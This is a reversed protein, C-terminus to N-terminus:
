HAGNQNRVRIILEVGEVTTGSPLEPLTDITVKASDIDELQGTDVHYFHHHPTPNTDYVVRNPDMIVERVLGKGAFLGLTNYVTAKSVPTRGGKNALELLQDATLHQHRSFLLLGLEVRQVTPTIDHASLLEIVASRSLPSHAHQEM